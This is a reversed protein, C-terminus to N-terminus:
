QQQIVLVIMDGDEQGRQLKQYAVTGIIGSIMIKSEQHEDQSPM